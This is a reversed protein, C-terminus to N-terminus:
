LLYETETGRRQCGRNSGCLVVSTDVIFSLYTYLIISTIVSLGLAMLFGWRLSSSSSCCYRVSWKTLSTFAYQFLCAYVVRLDLVSFFLGQSSM